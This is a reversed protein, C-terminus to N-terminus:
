PMLDGDYPGHRPARTKKRVPILYGSETRVLADPKGKLGYCSSVLVPCPGAGNDNYILDGDPLGGSRRKERALVLLFVAALILAAAVTVPVLTMQRWELISIAPGGHWRGLSHNGQSDSPM